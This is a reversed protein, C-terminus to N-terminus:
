FSLFIPLFFLFIIILICSYSLILFLQPRHLRRPRTLHGRVSPRDNGYIESLYKGFIGMKKKKNKKKKNKKGKVKLSFLPFLRSVQAVFCYFFAGLHMLKFASNMLILATKSTITAPVM